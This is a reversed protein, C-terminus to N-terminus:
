SLFRNYGDVDKTNLSRIQAELESDDNSYDFQSGDQWYLRYFPNVPMLEVYDAIQRGSLNWLEELCAPDTIVTPGADFTFGQKEWVYFDSSCVDSSWDRIRM